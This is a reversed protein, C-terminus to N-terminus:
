AAERWGAEDARGHGPPGPRQDELHEPRWRACSSPDGPDQELARWRRRRASPSGRSGRWCRDSCWGTRTSSVPPPAASAPSPRASWAGGELQRDAPELGALHQRVPRLPSPLASGSAASVAITTGIPEGQSGPMVVQVLLRGLPSAARLQGGFLLRVSSRQAAPPLRPRAPCTAPVGLATLRSEGQTKSSSRTWRSRSRKRSPPMPRRTMRPRRHVQSASSCCWASASRRPSCAVM